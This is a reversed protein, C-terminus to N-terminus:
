APELKEGTALVCVTIVAVFNCRDRYLQEFLCQQSIHLDHHMVDFKFFGHKAHAIMHVRLAAEDAFRVMVIKHVINLLTYLRSLYQVM